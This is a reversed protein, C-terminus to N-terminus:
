TAAKARPEGRSISLSPPAKAKPVVAPREDLSRLLFSLRQLATVHSTVALLWLAVAALHYTPAESSPSAFLVDVLPSLAVGFGLVVVREPRQMFGVEKMVVGIAEGRARLYPVFLAGTLALLAAILTTTGRYQWALGVLLASEGYRDVVSDLVAGSKTERRAARAVRGDLFDLAGSAIYLWGGLAFRGFAVSVGSLLAVCLAVTTITNPAIRAAVLGRWLPRMLWAFTHRASRRFLGGLGREDMEEDHFRGARHEHVARAVLAAALAATVVLVPGFASWLRDDGAFNTASNLLDM